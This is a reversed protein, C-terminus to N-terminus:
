AAANWGAIGTNVNRMAAITPYDDSAEESMAVTEFTSQIRLLNQM